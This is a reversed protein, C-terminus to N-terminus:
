QIAGFQALKKLLEYNRASSLIPGSNGTNCLSIIWDTSNPETSDPDVALETGNCFLLLNDPQRIFFLRADPMRTVGAAMDLEELWDAIEDAEPQYIDEPYKAESVFSGFWRALTDPNTLVQQLKERVRNLSDPSIEGPNLELSLDPDSYRQESSLREGVHDSLSRLIEADSPARFGISYTTCDASTAVGNHAIQPPLYLMDGPQLEFSESAEFDRLIMLPLEPIRASESSEIGGIEWRRTGTAQLLFVDYNDYHPGVGGGPTAYSIMLDDIRWRPIFNFCNLLEAAEDLYQDVAQVLLTWHSEPLDAFDSESFPGRQLNFDGKDPNYRILRSEVQEELALGALEDSELLPELNPFAQRILLPRKQWYEKLFQEATLEGWHIEYM